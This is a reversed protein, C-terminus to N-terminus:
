RKKEKKIKEEQAKLDFRNKSVIINEMKKNGLIEIMAVPVSQGAIEGTVYTIKVPYFKDKVLHELGTNDILKLKKVM